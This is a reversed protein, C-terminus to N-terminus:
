LTVEAEIPGLLRQFYKGYIQRWEHSGRAFQVAMDILQQRVAPPADVFGDSTDIGHLKLDAQASKVAQDFTFTMQDATSASGNSVRDFRDQLELDLMANKEASKKRSEGWGPYKAAIEARKANYALKTEAMWPKSLDAMKYGAKDLNDQFDKRYTNWEDWGDRADASYTQHSKSMLAHKQEAADGLLHNIDNYVPALSRVLKQVNAAEAASKVSVGNPSFLNLIGPVFENKGHLNSAMNMIPEIYPRNIGGFRGPSLGFAFLNLQQLKELVPLHEKWMQSLNYKDNLLEYGKLADHMIVARSLDDGVYKAIHSYAKKQFSFPFFIFNVSQEAASRGHTGYTYMDRVHEYASRSDFGQETLHHFAAAMWNTPNFGMIGVQQFWTSMNDAAQMDTEGRSAGSFKQVVGKFRAAAESETLGETKRWTKMLSKPSMNLPMVVREGAANRLPAATQGLMTGETYRSLDFFPSLTFRLTDRVGALDDALYGYQFWKSAEFAREAKAFLPSLSGQAVTGAAAGIAAGKLAGTLNNPDTQAGYIGGAVAGVKRATSSRGLFSEGHETGSLVKLAGALQNKSRLKAEIAYLGVDRFETNRMRRLARAAANAADDGYVPALEHIVRAHSTRGLDALTVPTTSTKAAALRRSLWTGMAANTRTDEAVSQESRLISHLDELLNSVDQDNVSKDLGGKALEDVLVLRHRREENMRAIAPERGKFFNGLTVANLHRRTIDEFVPTNHALDEPMLYEVGHVLKYGDRDLADLHDKMRQYEPTGEGLTELLKDGDIRAATFNAKKQLDTIRQKLAQPGRLVPGVIEDPAAKGTVVKPLGIWDTLREDNVAQDVADNLHGELASFPIGQRKAYAYVARMNKQSTGGKVVENVAQEFQKKSLDTLEGYKETLGPIKHGEQSITQHAKLLEKLEETVQRIQGKDATGARMITFRGISPDVARALPDIRGLTTVKQIDTEPDRFLANNVGQSIEQNVTPHVVVKPKNAKVTPTLKGSPLAFSDYVADDLLGEHLLQRIESTRASFEPWNGFSDMIQPLYKSIVTARDTANMDAWGYLRAAVAPDLDPSAEVSLLQQLTEQAARNHNEAFSLAKEPDQRFIDRLKFFEKKQGGVGMSAAYAVEDLTHAGVNDLDFGRVQAILKNKFRNYNETFNKMGAAKAQSASIHDIAAATMVYGMSAGAAEEDVGFHQAFAPLFGKENFVAQYADRAEPELSGLMAQHFAMTLQQNNALPKWSTKQLFDGVLGVSKPVIKSAIPVDEAAAAAANLGKGLLPVSALGLSGIAAGEITDGTDKGMWTGLGAGLVAGAVAKGPTTGLAAAGKGILGKAGSTFTGPRFTSYPTLFLEAVGSGAVFLPNTQAWTVGQKIGPVDSASVGGQYGPVLDELQSTVGLRMGVQIAKKAVATSPLERWAKMADGAGKVLTRDSKLFRAGLGSVETMRNYDAAADYAGTLKTLPNAVRYLGEVAEGGAFAEGATFAVRAFDFAEGVGSALMAWNAVPMLIDDVPGTVADVLNKAFDFPNKSKGLKRWKDGWTTFEKGIAGVDWFLDLNTAAAMLGTPSTWKGLQDVVKSFPIAGPRDGRLSSNYDDYAMSKRISEFEPSWSNDIQGDTPAPLYGKDIAEIKWRKVASDDLTTPPKSSSVGAVILRTKDYTGFPPLGSQQQLTPQQQDPPQQDPPQADHFDSDLGYLLNSLHDANVGPQSALDFKVEDPLEPLRWSSTVANIAKLNADVQSADFASTPQAQGSADLLSSAEM